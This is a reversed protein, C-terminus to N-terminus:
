LLTTLTTRSRDFLFNLDEKIINRITLQYYYNCSARLIGVSLRQDFACYMTNIYEKVTNIDGRWDSKFGMMLMNPSLKGLGAMTICNKAGEEFSTTQNVLYFGRIAHDQSTRLTIFCNSIKDIASAISYM